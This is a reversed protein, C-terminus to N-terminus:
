DTVLSTAFEFLQRSMGEGVTTDIANEIAGLIVAASQCTPESIGLFYQVSEGSKKIVKAFVCIKDIQMRDVSGDCELSLSLINSSLINQVSHDSKTICQIFEKHATPTLYQFNVDLPVCLVSVNKDQFLQAAISTVVRSPFSYASLTITKADTYTHIMLGGIKNALDENMQTLINDMTCEKAKEPVKLTSLRFTKVSESHYKQSIHKEITDNRFRTGDTVIALLRTMTGHLKVLNPFM